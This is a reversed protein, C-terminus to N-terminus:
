GSFIVVVGAVVSLVITIIKTKKGIFSNSEGWDSGSEDSSQQTNTQAQVLVPATILLAWITSIWYPGDM